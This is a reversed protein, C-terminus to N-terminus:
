SRLLKALDEAVGIGRLVEAVSSRTLSRLISTLDVDQDKPLSRSSVAPTEIAVRARRSRPEIRHATLSEDGECVHQGLRVGGILAYRDDERRGIGRRGLLERPYTTDQLSILLRAEVRGKDRVLRPVVAIHVEEGHLSILVMGYALLKPPALTTEVVCVHEGIQLLEQRAVVGSEEDDQMGIPRVEAIPIAIRLICSGERDGM